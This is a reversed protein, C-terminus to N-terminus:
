RLVHIKVFVDTSTKGKEAHRKRSCHLIPLASLCANAWVSGAMVFHEEAVVVVVVVWRM